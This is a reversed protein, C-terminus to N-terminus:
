GARGCHNSLGRAEADGTAKGARVPRAGMASSRAGSHYRPLYAVELGFRINGAEIVETGRNHTVTHRGKEAMDHAIAAVEATKQAVLTADLQGALADYGARQLMAPLKARLQTTAWGVPNGSVTPDLMIRVNGQAPAYHYHPSNEFCDFRLLETETEGVQGIVQICVGQDAHNGGRGGANQSHPAGGDRERYQLAFSYEV